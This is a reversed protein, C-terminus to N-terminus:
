LNKCHTRLRTTQTQPQLQIWDRSAAALSVCTSWQQAFTWLTDWRCTPITGSSVPHWRWLLRTARKWRRLFSELRDRDPTWFSAQTWPGHVRITHVSCGNQCATDAFVNCWLAKDVRGAECPHKTWRRRKVVRTWPTPPHTHTHECAGTRTIRSCPGHCPHGFHTYIVGTDVPQTSPEDVSGTFM